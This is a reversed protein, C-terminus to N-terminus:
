GQDPESNEQILVFPQVILAVFQTQPAQNWTNLQDEAPKYLLQESIWHQVALTNDNAIAEGVELLDMGPTVVVLADRKAHPVLWSWEVTDMMETLQTRVHTM